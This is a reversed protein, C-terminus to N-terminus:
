SWTGSFPVSAGNALTFHGVAMSGVTQTAPTPTCIYTGSGSAPVTPTSVPTGGFTVAGSSALGNIQISCGTEAVNSTGTNTLVVTCVGTAADCSTVQATVTASSTFSGFLGFVFGAVAIAAILTIAILIVTALVPSIAKRKRGHQVIKM